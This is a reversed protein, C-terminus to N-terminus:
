LPHGGGGAAALERLNRAHETGECDRAFDM